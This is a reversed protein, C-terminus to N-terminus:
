KQGIAKKAMMSGNVSHYLHCARWRGFPKTARCTAHHYSLSQMQMYAWRQTNIPMHSQIGCDFQLQLHDFRPLSPASVCAAKV